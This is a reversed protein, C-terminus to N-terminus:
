TIVTPADRGTMERVQSLQLALEVLPALADATEAELAAPETPPTYKEIYLRITAGVSGTGSLRIIIRSGDSFLVRVGQRSSVSGDVPDTYEFEDLTALEFGHEAATQAAAGGEGALSLLRAVLESAKAADVQEYDYRTYYNRGYKRWHARVVDGVTVLEGVPTETNHHALISLWCLVAWLGDKERVHSSGTGFSEEGCILPSLLEGGLLHSDM